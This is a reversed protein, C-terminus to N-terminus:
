KDTHATIGMTASTEDIYIIADFQDALHTYSYHSKMENQPKYVVGVHRQLRPENLLKKLEASQHLYLVFHPIGLQHFLSENSNPHAQLLTKIQASRNWDDAAAVSGSYTLMGISFAQQGFNQRLLQGLSLQAQGAMETARADGVHSNHAWIITKPSVLYDSIALFSELMHRDRQNWSVTDDGTVYQLRLSKETNKVIRANQSAYFFAERDIFSYQEPCPFRCLSFDQYQAVVPEKCSLSHDRSVARGYRHLDNNFRNFCQYRQQAQQAAQPSFNQLYDVVLGRSQEFSYIDLGLLSVKQETDPLQENYNKLWQIFNLMEMNRWLWASQPNFVKLVEEATVDIASHIYQNLNYVTPWSGELLLLKFNKEQILGKSIDIRQQYFEHTGHTSDGILVIPRKGILEIIAKTDDLSHLPVVSSQLLAMPSLNFSYLSRMSDIMFTVAVFLLATLFYRYLLKGSAM